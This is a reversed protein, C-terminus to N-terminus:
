LEVKWVYSLVTVAIYMGILVVGFPWKLTSGSLFIGGRFVVLVVLM